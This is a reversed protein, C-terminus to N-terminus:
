SSNKQKKTLLTSEETKQMHGETDPKDMLPITQCKFLCKSADSLSAALKICAINLWIIEM